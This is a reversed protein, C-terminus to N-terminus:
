LLESLLSSIKDHQIIGAYQWRVIGAKDVLVSYPLVGEGNGYALSTDFVDAEGILIPYTIGYTKIFGKVTEADDLAIGVVQLGTSGYQRQLDMLMPMENRCPVCWTAWFNILVTKGAFDAPSVFVGTSNGLQFDPRFSGVLTSGSAPQAVVIPESFHRASLYFGALLAAIAVLTVVLKRM